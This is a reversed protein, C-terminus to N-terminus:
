SKKVSYIQSTFFQAKLHVQHHWPKLQTKRQRKTLKIIPLHQDLLGGMKSIFTNFCRNSDLGCEDFASVWDIEQFDLAFKEHDFLSWNHKFVVDDRSNTSKPRFICFQPLHDSISFCINGSFNLTDSATSFINDILTQSDETIRTSLLIQPLILNYGLTDLFASSEPEDKANLLNVNFDGLLILQKNESGLKHLFPKLHESNFSKLSMCPHRYIVGVIIYAKNPNIIEVSVSELAKPLYMCTNLDPRPKFAFSNSIYLLVGGASSETPTSVNSYGPLSFDLVPERNKLFRTETIGILSFNCHLFSLMTNLEDFHKSMSSINLHLTSMNGRVSSMASNFDQCEYYKCPTPNLIHDIDNNCSVNNLNLILSTINDSLKNCPPIAQPIPESSQQVKGETSEPPFPLITNICNPCFWTNSDSTILNFEPKSIGSCKNQHIWLKCCDCLISKCSNSVGRNCVPCM